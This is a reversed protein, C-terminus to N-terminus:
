LKYRHDLKNWTKYNLFLLLVNGLSHTTLILTITKKLCSHPSRLLTPLPHAILWAKKLKVLVMHHVEARFHSSHLWEDQKRKFRFGCSSSQCWSFLSRSPLSLFWHFHATRQGTEWKLKTKSILCYILLLIRWIWESGEHSGSSGQNWGAAEPCIQGLLIAM